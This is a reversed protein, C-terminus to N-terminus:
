RSTVRDGPRVARGDIVTLRRKIEDLDTSGLEIWGDGLHGARRLAAPSTGGVEIPVPQQVPKPEFCVPGFDFHRSHHEVVDDSWLRRILEICEDARKGRDPFSQGVVVFEEEMWGVGIGLVARGRSVRDLTM